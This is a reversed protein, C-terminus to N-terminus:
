EPWGETSSGAIALICTGGGCAGGVAVCQNAVCCGGGNCLNNACCPLNPDGCAGTLDPLNTNTLDPPTQGAMDVPPQGTLDAPPQGTLDPPAQGAMDGTPAALDPSGADSTLTSDGCGAFAFLIAVSLGLRNM